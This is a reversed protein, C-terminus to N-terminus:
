VCCINGHLHIHLCYFLCYHVCIFSLVYKEQSHQGIVCADRVFLCLQLYVVTCMETTTTSTLLDSNLPVHVTM